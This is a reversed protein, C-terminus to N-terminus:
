EAEDALIRYLQRRVNVLLDRAAALQAATGVHIVQKFATEVQAFVDQLDTDGTDMRATVADRAAVLENRHEAIYALGSETLHFVRRSDQQEGLVLGQDELLQLAPYVSGASPRWHGGSREEILQIIQYGHLSQEELLLLTAAYVDGRGVHRRRRDGREGRERGRSREGREGAADHVRQHHEHHREREVGDGRERSLRFRYHGFERGSPWDAPWSLEQTSM